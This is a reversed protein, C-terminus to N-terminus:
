YVEKIKPAHYKEKLEKGITEDIYKLLRGNKNLTYIWDEETVDFCEAVNIPCYNDSNIMPCNHKTCREVCERALTHLTFM